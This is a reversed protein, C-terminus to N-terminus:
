GLSAGRRGDVGATGQAIRSAGHNKRRTNTIIIQGLLGNVGTSGTHCLAAGMANAVGCAMAYRLAGEPSMGRSLAVAYGAVTCDGCGITHYVPVAPVQAHWFGEADVLLAGRSGLSVMVRDIGTERLRDALVKLYELDGRDEGGYLALLEHENPKAFAYSGGLAGKLWPGTTDLFCRAGRRLCIRSIELYIDTRMGPFGLGSCIVIDEEAVAEALGGLFQDMLPPPPGSGAEIIETEKGTRRDVINITVRTEGPVTIWDSRCGSAATERRIIEGNAGGIFGRVEVPEGLGAAARAVNIGKGGANIRPVNGFYKEGPSFGDLYYMRDVAPNVCLARIM